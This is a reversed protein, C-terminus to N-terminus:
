IRTMNVLPFTNTFALNNNKKRNKALKSKTKRSRGRKKSKLSKAKTKRRKGFGSFFSSDDM